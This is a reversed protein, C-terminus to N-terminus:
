VKYGLKEMIAPIDATKIPIGTKINDIGGWTKGADYSMVMSDKWISIKQEGGHHSAKIWTISYKDELKDWNYEPKLRDNIKDLYQQIEAAIRQVPDGIDMATKPDMGREFNVENLNEPVLKM